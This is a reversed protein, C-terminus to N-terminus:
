KLCNGGKGTREKRVASWVRGGAPTFPFSWERKLRLGPVFAENVSPVFRVRKERRIGPQIRSKERGGGESKEKESDSHSFPADSYYDSRNKICM